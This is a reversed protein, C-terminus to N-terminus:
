FEIDKYDEDPTFEFAWPNHQLFYQIAQRVNVDEHFKTSIPKRTSPDIGGNKEFHQILVEKEYCIGAETIVPNEMIDLTIKCILYEPIELKRKKNPDGM